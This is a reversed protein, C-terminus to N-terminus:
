RSLCTLFGELVKINDNSEIIYIEKNEIFIAEIINGKSYFRTDFTDNSNGLLTWEDDVLFITDSYNKEYVDIELRIYKEDKKYDAVIVKKSESNLIRLDKLTYGEQLNNPKLVSQGIIEEVEEWTKCKKSQLDSDILEDTNGTVTVRIRHLGDQVVEFFSKQKLAYSGVNVSLMLVICAAVGVGLRILFKKRKWGKKRGANVGDAGAESVIDVEGAADEEVGFRRDFRERAAASDSPYRPDEKMPELVDLLQVIADVEEADFQEDSAEFTYWHLKEYLDNILKENQLEKSQTM